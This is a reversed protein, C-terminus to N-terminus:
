RILCVKLLMFNIDALREANSPRELLLTIPRKATSLQQKVEVYKLSNCPLGNIAIIKSGDSISDDKSRSVAAIETGPIQILYFPIGSGDALKKKYQSTNSM